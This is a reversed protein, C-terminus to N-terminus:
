GGLVSVISIGGTVIAWRPAHNLPESRFGPEPSCMRSNEVSVLGGLLDGACWFARPVLDQLGTISVGPAQERSAPGRGCLPRGECVQDAGTCVFPSPNHGRPRRQEQATTVGQRIVGSSGPKILSTSLRTEWAETKRDPFHTHLLFSPYCCHASRGPERTVRRCTAPSVSAPHPQSWSDPSETAQKSRACRSISCGPGSPSSYGSPLGGRGAGGPVDGGERHWFGAKRPSM